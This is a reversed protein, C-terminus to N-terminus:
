RLNLNYTEEAPTGADLTYALTIWGSPTDWFGEFYIERFVVREWWILHAGIRAPFWIFKSRTRTDGPKPWKPLPYQRVQKKM